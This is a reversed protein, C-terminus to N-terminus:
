IKGKHICKGCPLMNKNCTRFWYYRNCPQPTVSHKGTKKRQASYAPQTETQGTIMYVLQREPHM